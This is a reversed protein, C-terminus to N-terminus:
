LKVADAASTAMQALSAACCPTAHSNLHIRMMPSIHRHRSCTHPPLQTCSIGVGLTLLLLLPPPPPPLLPLLLVLLLLLLLLLLQSLL